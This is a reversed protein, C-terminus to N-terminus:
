NSLYVQLEDLNNIGKKAAWTTKTVEMEAVIPVLGDPWDEMIHKFDFFVRTENHYRDWSLEDHINMQWRSRINNAKTYDYLERIKIKLFFAASGQVLLNKLKHGSVNYYRVGFLNQTNSEMYARNECYKHYSKVGPFAKYYAENIRKIEEKSKGPFMTRIRNEEAGYNKAFNVRKGISSRLNHFEPDNHDLGTAAMTTAAHVDTPTWPVGPDETLHWEEEWARIHDYNNFDFSGLTRHECQYPMYARCMNLDPHGVLITYMAQFRLEIQSYDLYVLADYEGGSPM